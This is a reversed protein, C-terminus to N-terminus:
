SRGKNILEPDLTFKANGPGTIEIGYWYKTDENPTDTSQIVVDDGLPAVNYMTLNPTKGGSRTWSGVPSSENKRDEGGIEINNFFHVASIDFQTNPFNRLQLTVQDDFHLSIPGHQDITPKNNNFRVEVNTNAKQQTEPM